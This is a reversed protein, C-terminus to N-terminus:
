LEQLESGREPGISVVKVPVGCYREIFALYDQAEKPLDAKTKASKPMSPFGAFSEYVPTVRALEEPDWPFYDIVKGDLEYGICAQVTPNEALIDLKTIALYDVGNIECAFKLAKLDLWGCRRPRGTTAGFESGKARLLEGMEDNLETPFPGSGVRTAYCKAVAIVKSHRADGFGSGAGSHGAVCNSSTVFPYTGHDVDLLAGQAGEFLIRKSESKARQLFGHVDGVFPRLREAHQMSREIMEEIDQGKFTEADLADLMANVFVTAERVRQSLRKKDFIEYLRIGRRSVKEEYAPGIGRGTTGIKDQGRAKERALDIRKHFPFIVHSTPSLLLRSRDKLLGRSTLTDIEQLLVEPDIVVGPGIVCTVHEHLIGSPILHLVTRVGDVVLTHGANNGGQFRVVIDSRQSLIDVIRGKGEDGWQGGVCVFNTM